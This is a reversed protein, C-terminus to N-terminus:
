AAGLEDRDIGMRDLLDGSRLPNVRSEGTAFAMAETLSQEGEPADGGAERSAAVESLRKGKPLIGAAEQLKALGEAVQREALREDDNAAAKRLLVLAALCQERIVAKRSM